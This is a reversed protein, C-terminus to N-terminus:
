DYDYDHGYQYQQKMRKLMDAVQVNADLTLRLATIKNEEAEKPNETIKMCERVIKMSEEIIKQTGEIALHEYFLREKPTLIHDDNNL